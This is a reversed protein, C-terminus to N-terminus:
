FHKASKKRFDKIIKGPCTVDSIFIVVRLVSPLDGIM